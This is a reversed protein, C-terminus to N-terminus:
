ALYGIANCTAQHRIRSVLTPDGATIYAVIGLEGTARSEGFRKRIRARATV